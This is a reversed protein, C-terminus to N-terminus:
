QQVEVLYRTELSQLRTQPNLFKWNLMSTGFHSFKQIKVPKLGLQELLKLSEPNAIVRFNGKQAIIETPTKSIVDNNAYFEANYPTVNSSFIPSQVDKLALGIQKGADYDSLTYFFNLNMMGFSISLALTSPLLWKEKEDLGVFFYFGLILTTFGFGIALNTNLGPLLFTNIWFSIGLLALLLFYQFYLLPKSPHAHKDLDRAVLLAAFPILVNIYHPLKYHSLSLIAFPLMFGTWLMWDKPEFQKINSIGNWLARLLLLTFPLFAWLFTHLFFFGDADNRWKNEGTIRGFSQEWFYFRLGNSGYQTYLGHCMPFLM